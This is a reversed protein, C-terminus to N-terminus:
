TNKIRGRLKLAYVVKQYIPLNNVMNNCKLHALVMNSLDNKGGSSLAILHEVTIDDEMEEGCFFCKTGDRSILHAKQKKYTPYRGINIPAGDWKDGTCFAKYAKEAYISNFRGTSYIIGVQSGKFRIIEYQNTNPLIECGRTILWKAFKDTNM